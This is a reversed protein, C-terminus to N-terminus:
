SQSVPTIPKIQKNRPRYMLALGVLIWFTERIRTILSVYVGLGSALTMGQFALLFGGERTGMQLPAFFLINALLSTVAIAIVADIYGFDSMGLAMVIFYVELSSVFRSLYELALSKFFDKRRCTYLEAIKADTDQIKEMTQASMRQVQRGLFPIKAAIRLSKVLLGNRYGKIFFRVFAACVAIIGLVVCIVAISPSKFALILIAATAWFLFHSMIHMMSYLIVSSSAKAGGVYPRLELIRYPEGGLAVVPTTYNIAYGSVTMQFIRLFPVHPTQGDRIITRWSLTNLLYVVIWIGIIPVFWWGTVRINDWIVGVGIKYIM